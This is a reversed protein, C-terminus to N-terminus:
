WFDFDGAEVKENQCKQSQLQKADSGLKWVMDVKTLRCQYNEQMSICTINKSKIFVEIEAKLHGQNQEILQQGYTTRQFTLKSCQKGHFRYICFFVM